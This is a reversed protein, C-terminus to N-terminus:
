HFPFRKTESTGNITLRYYLIESDYVSNNKLNFPYNYKGIAHSGNALTLLVAGTQDIIELLTQLRGFLYSQKM